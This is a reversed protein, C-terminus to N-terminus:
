SSSRTAHTKRDVLTGGIVTVVKTRETVKLAHLSLQVRRRTRAHLVVLYALAALSITVGGLAADAVSLRGFVALGGIASVAMQGYVM